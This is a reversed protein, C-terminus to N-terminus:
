RIAQRIARTYEQALQRAANEGDSEAWVHTLADEPDPLVLAWGDPRLFKVGDILLMEHETEREVLERMVLGKREWPTPVTEHVIHVRPLSEVVSSLSRGTAALLDLLKALTATADYAPLFDPWIFCGHASGAFSVKGESAVEMLHADSRKTWVIEAGREAALQEAVQTVSVPLAIRAHEVTEAVLCVLALLAETDSLVHGADDVLRITEGDPSIVAGLQSGSAGVLEGIRAEHEKVDVFASQSTSAYPNIAFV